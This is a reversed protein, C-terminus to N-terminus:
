CDLETGTCLFSLLGIRAARQLDQCAAPGARWAHRGFHSAAVPLWGRPQLNCDWIIRLVHHCEILPLLRQKWLIASLRRNVNGWLRRRVPQESTGHLDHLGM